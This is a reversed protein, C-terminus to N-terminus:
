NGPEAVQHGSTCSTKQEEQGGVKLIVHLRVGLLVDQRQLLLQEVGLEVDWDVKSLLGLLEQFKVGSESGLSLHTPQRVIVRFFFISRRKM